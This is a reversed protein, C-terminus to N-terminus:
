KQAERAKRREDAGLEYKLNELARDSMTGLNALPDSDKAAAADAIRKVEARQEPTMKALDDALKSTVHNDGLNPQALQKAPEM